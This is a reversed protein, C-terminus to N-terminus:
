FASSGQNQRLLALISRKKLQRCAAKESVLNKLLIPRNCGTIFTAIPWFYGEVSLRTCVWEFVAQVGTVASTYSM